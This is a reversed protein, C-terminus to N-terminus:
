ITYKYFAACTGESSVMCPGVPTGPTCRKGYLPCAPPEKKGKLIEGCLCGKPEAAPIIDIGLRKIADYHAYKSRIGLGSQPIMGLGRWEMDVPEFIAATMQQARKNGEWRVARTYANEVKSEGRNIQKALMILAQLIDATEFGGVVCALKYKEALPVYASAGIITSVHGPCLLGDIKLEPDDLLALLPPPMVKHTSFVTFNDLGANDAALITAAIGPTTTEFGVGLFVVMEDPHDRAIELADMPSYVIDVRAGQSSANALSLGSSGPVRFLDGFLAIRTDAREAITLIADIHGASTVCVPCGPGSILELGDPLLSRLGNRFISMTHTGCVEMVRFPKSFTRRLEQLLPAALKEDRFEDLYKM